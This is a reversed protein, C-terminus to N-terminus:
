VSDPPCDMLSLRRRQLLGSQIESARRVDDESIPHRVPPLNGAPRVQANGGRNELLGANELHSYAKSVGAPNVGLESSLERACPLEEGPRILGAAIQLRVQDVVQRYIPVGSHPDIMLLM